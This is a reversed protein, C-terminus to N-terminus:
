GLSWKVPDDRLHVRLVGTTERRLWFDTSTEGSRVGVGGVPVSDVTKSKVRM